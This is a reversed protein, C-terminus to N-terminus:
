AAGMGVVYVHGEVEFMWKYGRFTGKQGTRSSEWPEEVIQTANREGKRTREDNEYFMLATDYDWVDFDTRGIYDGTKGGLIRLVYQQSLVVMVYCNKHEDYRKIWALGPFQRVAELLPRSETSVAKAQDALSDFRKLLDDDDSM